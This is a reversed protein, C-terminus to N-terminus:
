EVLRVILLTGPSQRRSAKRLPIRPEFGLGRMRSIDPCRRPTSGALLPGPVVEIQRGFCRGVEQALREITVEHDTGIHYIGLHEGREIVRLAGAVLDDIYVFARTEQGSGQIPFRM